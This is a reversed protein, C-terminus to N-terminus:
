QHRNPCYYIVIDDDPTIKAHGGKIFNTLSGTPPLPTLAWKLPLVFGTRSFGSKVYSDSLDGEAVDPLEFGGLGISYPIGNLGSTILYKVKGNIIDGKKAVEKGKYYVSKQVKFNLTKGEYLDKDRTSIKDTINLEVPIKVTNFYNYNLNIYPKKIGGKKYNKELERRQETSNLLFNQYYENKIYENNYEIFYLCNKYIYEYIYMLRKSTLNHKSFTDQRKEPCTKNIYTILALPNYGAKVLFEVAMKDAIVEYKKPSSAAEFTGMWGKIAGGYSKMGFSIKRAIIAALEDETASHALDEDTIVIQRKYVEPALLSKKKKKNYSFIIRKDLENANLIRFGVRDIRKQVSLNKLWAGEGDGSASGAMQVNLNQETEINEEM